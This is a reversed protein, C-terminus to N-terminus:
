MGYAPNNPHTTWDAHGVLVTKGTRLDVEVPSLTRRTICEPVPCVLVLAAIGLLASL